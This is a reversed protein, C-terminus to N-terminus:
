KIMEKPIEINMETNSDRLEFYLVSAGNGIYLHTYPYNKNLSFGDFINAVMNKMIQLLNVDFKKSLNQVIQMIEQANIEKGIEKTEHSKLYIKSETM